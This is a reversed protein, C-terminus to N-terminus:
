ISLKWAQKIMLQFYEDDDISASIDTYYDVFEDFTVIGDKEQTDWQTMFERYVDMATKKGNIVEPHHSADYIQAIDDLKVLGDKNVDLKDYAMRVLRRRYDNMEGQQM